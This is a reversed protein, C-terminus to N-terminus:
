SAFSRRISMSRSAAFPLWPIAAVMSPSLREARLMRRLALFFAIPQFVAPGGAQGPQKVRGHGGQLNISRAFIAVNQQIAVINLCHTHLYEM